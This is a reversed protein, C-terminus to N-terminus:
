NSDIKRFNIALRQTPSGAMPPPLPSAPKLKKCVFQGTDAIPQHAKQRQM